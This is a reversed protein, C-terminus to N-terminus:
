KWSHYNHPSGSYKKWLIRRPLGAGGPLHLKAVGPLARWFYGEKLSPLKWLLPQYQHDLLSNWISSPWSFSNRWSSLLQFFYRLFEPMHGSKWTWNRKYWGDGNLTSLGSRLNYSYMPWMNTWFRSSNSIRNWLLIKWNFILKFIKM